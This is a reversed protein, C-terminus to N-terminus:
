PSRSLLDFHALGTDDQGDTVPHRADVAHLIGHGHLHQFERAADITEAKIQFLVIDTDGDHAIVGLDLFPVRDLPGPRIASIGTPSATSPRTM